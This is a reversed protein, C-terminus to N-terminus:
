SKQPEQRPWRLLALDELSVVVAAPKGRVLIVTPEGTYRARAVAEGLAGRTAHSITLEHM